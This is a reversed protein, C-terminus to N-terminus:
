GNLGASINKLDYQMKDYENFCRTLYESFSDLERQTKSAISSDNTLQTWKNKFRDYDTGKWSAGMEEVKVSSTNTENKQYEIYNYVAQQAAYIEDLDVDIKSM